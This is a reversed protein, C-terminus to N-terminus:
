RRKPNGLRSVPGEWFRRTVVLGVTALIAIGISTWGVFPLLGLWLALFVGVILSMAQWAFAPDASRRVPPKERPRPATRPSSRRPPIDQNRILSRTNLDELVSILNKMRTDLRAPTRARELKALLKPSNGPPRLAPVVESVGRLFSGVRDLLGEFRQRVEQYGPTAEWRQLFSKVAERSVGRPVGYEYAAEIGVAGLVKSWQSNARFQDFKKECDDRLQRAETVLGKLEAKADADDMERLALVGRVTMNGAFMQNPLRKGEIYGLGRLMELAQDCGSEDPIGANERLGKLIFPWDVYRPTKGLQFEKAFWRLGRTESETLRVM